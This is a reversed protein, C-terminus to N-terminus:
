SNTVHWRITDMEINDYGRLM